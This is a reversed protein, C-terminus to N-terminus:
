KNVLSFAYLLETAIEQCREAYVQAQQPTGDSLKPDNYPLSIRAKAGIVLPCNTDASNCTMVAAFNTQPNYSDTYKKSFGKITETRDNWSVTYIPNTGTNTTTISFGAEQLAKVANENFATVETGGSFSQVNEIGYYVAAAKAFLQSIHSRRSNHTCIFILNIPQKIAQQEGVYTAITALIEKREAAIRNFNHSCNTLYDQLTTYLQVSM